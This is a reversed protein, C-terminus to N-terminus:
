QTPTVLLWPCVVVTQQVSLQIGVCGLIMRVLPEKPHSEHPTAADDGWVEKKGLVLM